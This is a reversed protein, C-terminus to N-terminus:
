WDWTPTVEGDIVSIWPLFGGFGPYRTNFKEYTDIKKTAMELAESKTYILQALPDNDLVKALIAVHISEKSAATFQHMKLLEGTNVDIQCGDLTM